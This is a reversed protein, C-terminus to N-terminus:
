TFTTSQHRRPIQVYSSDVSCCDFMRDTQTSVRTLICTVGLSGHLVRSCLCRPAPLVSFLELCLLSAVFFHPAPRRVCLIAVCMELSTTSVPQRGSVAVGCTSMTVAEECVPSRGNCTAYCICGVLLVLLSVNQSQLFICPACSKGVATM